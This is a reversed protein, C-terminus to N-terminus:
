NKYKIEKSLEIWESKDEQEAMEEKLELKEDKVAKKLHLIIQDYILVKEPKCQETAREGMRTM